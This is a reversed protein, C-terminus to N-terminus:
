PIITVTSFGLPTAVAVGRQSPPGATHNQNTIGIAMVRYVANDPASVLNPTWNITFFWNRGNPVAVLLDGTATANNLQGILRWGETGLGATPDYAYFQVSSFPNAFQPFGASSASLGEAVATITVSGGAGRSYTFNVPLAPNVPVSPPSTLPTTCLTTGVACIVWNTPGGTTATNSGGANLAGLAPLVAALPIGVTSQMGLTLATVGITFGQNFAFGSATMLNNGATSIYPGAGTAAASVQLSTIINSVPYSIAFSGPLAAPPTTCTSAPQAPTLCPNILLDALPSGVYQWFTAGGAATTFGAWAVGTVADAPATGFTATAAGNTGLGLSLRVAQVDLNDVITSTFNVSGGPTLLGPTYALGGWASNTGDDVQILTFPQGSVAGTGSNNGAQDTITTALLYYGDAISNHTDTVITLNSAFNTGTLWTACTASSAVYAASGPCWFTSGSPTLLSQSVALPTVSLNFFGSGIAVGTGPPDTALLVIATGAGAPTAYIRAGNTVGGAQSLFPLTRDVGFQWPVTVGGVVTSGTNRTNHMLDQSKIRLQYSNNAATEPLPTQGTNSINGKADITANATGTVDARATFVTKMITSTGAVIRGSGLDMGTVILANASKSATPFAAWANGAVNSLGDLIVADNFWCNTRSNLDTAGVGIICTTATSGFAAMDVTPAPPPVNDLRFIIAPDANNSNALTNLVGVGYAAGFGAPIAGTPMPIGNGDSGVAAFNAIDGGGTFPLGGCAGGVAAPNWEYTNVNTVLSGSGAATFAFTNEWPGVSAGATNVNTLAITRLGGASCGLANVSATVSIVSGVPQLAPTYAVFLGSIKVQGSQWKYGAPDIASVIPTAEGGSNAATASITTTLHFGDLNAFRYTSVPSSGQVNAPSGGAQVSQKGYVKAQFTNNGNMYTPTGALVGAGCAVGPMCYDMTNFSGVITVSAPATQDHIHTNAASVLLSAQAATFAQKYATKGSVLLVVSDLSATGPNVNMVVNLQPGVGVATGIAGPPVPAPQQFGIGNTYNVASISITAPTPTVTSSAIVLVTACGSAGGVAACIGVSGAAPAAAATVVGASTVAAISSASSTWVIPTTVAGADATVAASLSVSGGNTLTATAPAVTVTHVVPTPAPNTVAPPITVKDGCAATFVAAAVILTSRLVKM